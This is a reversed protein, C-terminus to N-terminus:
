GLLRLLGERVAPPAAAAWGRRSHRVLLWLSRAADDFAALADKHLVAYVAETEWWGHEDAALALPLLADLHSLPQTGAAVARAGAIVADCRPDRRPQGPEPKFDAEFIDVAEAALDCALRRLPGAELTIELARIARVGDILAGARVCLRARRLGDGEALAALLEEGQANLAEDDHTLLAGLRALENDTTLSM